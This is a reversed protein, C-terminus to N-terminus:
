SKRTVSVGSRSSVTVSTVSLLGERDNPSIYNEAAASQSADERGTAAVSAGAVVFVALAARHAYAM